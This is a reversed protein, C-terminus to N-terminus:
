KYFSDKLTNGSATKMETVEVELIYKYIYDKRYICNYISCNDHKGLVLWIVLEWKM